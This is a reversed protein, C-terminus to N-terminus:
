FGIDIKEFGSDGGGKPFGNRIEKPIQPAKVNSFSISSSGTLPKGTIDEMATEFDMRYGDLEELLSVADDPNFDKSKLLSKLEDLKAKSKTIIDRPSVVDKSQKEVKNVMKEAQAIGKEIARVAGKTLSNVADLMGVSQFSDELNPFFDNELSDFAEEAKGTTASQKAKDLTAKLADIKAQTNTVADGVDVGNKQLKGKVKDFNKELKALNSDAQKLIRPFNALMNMAEINADLSDIFSNFDDLANTVEDSFETAAEIIAIAAKAKALADVVGVPADYGTKALKTITKDMQDTAKHMNKVSKKLMKFGKEMMGSVGAPPGFQTDTGSPIMNEYGAPISGDPPMMNEYGAPLGYVQASALNPIIFISLVHQFVLM